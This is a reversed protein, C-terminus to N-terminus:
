RGGNWDAEFQDLGAGYVEGLARDVHYRWTGPVVRAAGVTEFLRSPAATGKEQALFAIASTSERYSRLIGPQGGTVFEHDLPLLGDTGAVSTPRGRGLALWDAHGEHLWNPVNPGARDFAVVHVFEHHLTEVQFSRSHGSLNAEQAYVRPATWAFGDAEDGRDTSSTAFAVFNTLDFYTQLMAELQGTSTPLVLLIRPPPPWDLTRGLRDFAEEAIELLAAARAGEGPQSMVVVHTGETFVVPGFDWLNRNTELGLDVADTDANVYWEEGRRVFTYWASDLADADDVDTLRYRVEVAPLRVEDAGRDDEVASSLDRVDEARLVLDYRELDVSALGDFLRQQNEVFPEPAEPDVTALFAERDRALVAAARETLLRAVAPEWTTEGEAGGQARAGPAAALGAV